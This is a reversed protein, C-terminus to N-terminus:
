RRGSALGAVARVRMAWGIWEDLSVIRSLDAPQYYMRTGLEALNQDDQSLSLRKAGLLAADPNPHDSFAVQEDGKLASLLAFYGAQFALSASDATPCRVAESLYADSARALAAQRSSADPILM